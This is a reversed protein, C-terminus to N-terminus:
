SLWKKPTPFLYSCVTRLALGLTCDTAALITKAIGHENVFFLAYLFAILVVAFLILIACLAVWRMRIGQRAEYTRLQRDTMKLEPMASDIVM